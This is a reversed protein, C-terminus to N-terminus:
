KDDDLWAPKACPWRHINKGVVVTPWGDPYRATLPYPRGETREVATIRLGDEVHWIPGRAVWDAILEGRPNTIRLRTYQTQCGALLPLAILLWAHPLLKM